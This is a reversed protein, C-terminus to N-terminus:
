VLKESPFCDIQELTKAKIKTFDGEQREWLLKDTSIILLTAEVYGLNNFLRKAEEIYIHYIMKLNKSHELSYKEVRVKISYLYSNVRCIGKVIRLIGIEYPVNTTDILLKMLNEIKCNTFEILNLILYKNYLKDKDMGDTKSKDTEQYKYISNAKGNINCTGELERSIHIYIQNTTERLKILINLYRDRFEFYNM